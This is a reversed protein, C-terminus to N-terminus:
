QVPTIFTPSKVHGGEPLDTEVKWLLRSGAPLDALASAPVQYETAKLGEASSLVRLDETSVEVAYATVAPAGAPPSWKLLFRDRPLAQGEAVLSRITAQSGRYTSGNSSDPGAPLLPRQFWQLGVFALALAAAAALGWNRLQNFRPAFRLPAPPAVAAGAESETQLTHALRWDEACAACVATHLVIERVEDAPLAGQVADWIKEPAPCVAPEPTYSSTAFAKRLSAIENDDDKLPKMPKM